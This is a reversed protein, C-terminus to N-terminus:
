FSMIFPTAVDTVTRYTRRIKNRQPGRESIKAVFAKPLCKPVVRVTLLAVALHWFARFFFEQPDLLGLRHLVLNYPRRGYKTLATYQVIVRVVAFGCESGTIRTIFIRKCARKLTLLGSLVCSGSTLRGCRGLGPQERDLHVVEGPQTGFLSFEHSNM